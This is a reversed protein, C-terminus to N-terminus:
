QRTTCGWVKMTCGTGYKSCKAVANKQAVSKNVSHVWGWSHNDGLAFAACTNQFQIVVDCGDGCSKLAAAEGQTEFDVAWGYADTDKNFALSGFMDGAAYLSVSVLAAALLIGMLVRKKMIVEHSVIM